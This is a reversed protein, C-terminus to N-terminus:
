VPDPRVTPTYGVLFSTFGFFNERLKKTAVLESVDAQKIASL